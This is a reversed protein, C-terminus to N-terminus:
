RCNVRKSASTVGSKLVKLRTNATPHKSHQTRGAGLLNMRPDHPHGAFPAREEETLDFGTLAGAPDAALRRRFEPERMARDLVESVAQMTM